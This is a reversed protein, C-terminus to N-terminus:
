EAYVMAGSYCEPSIHASLLLQRLSNWFGFEQFLGAWLLFSVIGVGSPFFVSNRGPRSNLIEPL